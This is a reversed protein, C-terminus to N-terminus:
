FVTGDADIALPPPGHPPRKVAAIRRGASWTGGQLMHPLLFDDGRGLASRVLPLLRDLLTVTLARWECVVPSDVRHARAADAPDRLTLVGLDIFLGGNRYEPLGTLADVDTVTLGAWKLPEVLSYTLWQSLKHFPVIGNTVDDTVVATSRAADGVPYGDVVLASPWISALANLVLSLLAQASVAGNRVIPADILGGPRASADAFLGPEAALAEGLRRLLLARRELGPLASDDSVQFFRGLTDASVRSLGLADAQWPQSSVSSFGGACFMEFSAVALGESRAYVRGDRDRYRWESGAGADLLVSVTALDIAAQARTRTDAFRSAIAGWRDVGGTEFHRWRSHVPIDLNPYNRRCEEAVFAAVGALRTEDLAFHASRGEAVFRYVKASRERVAAASRLSMLWAPAASVVERSREPAVLTTM